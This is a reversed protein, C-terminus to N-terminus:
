DPHKEFVNVLVQIEIDMSYMKACIKNQVYKWQKHHM